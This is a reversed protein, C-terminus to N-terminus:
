ATQVEIGYFSLMPLYSGVDIPVIFKPNQEFAGHIVCSGKIERSLTLQLKSQDKLEYAKIELTGEADAVTFPLAQVEVEFAYIRLSINDFSLLISDSGIAEAKAIDPAKCNFKKIGYIESLATRAFREGLVMNSASSNHIGDSLGCDIAPIVYVGSIRKPAQRQAERVMGWGRDAEPTSGCVCRNLQVTLVPLANNKFDKRLHRVMNEFRDLYTEYAGAGTDSCGQYWLIGKVTDTYAKASQLMSAYLTGEEDPNWRSLPSGGLSAQILGVPYGLEKKLQKAFSLYPSHGPNAGERNVEHITQTSENLPHSALDWKGSNRLVHVGLEPPDFVPDKGYGASNSQGTIIYLDGVGIHHIMDGRTGWEIRWGCSETNLCTEVRYLGGAPVNKLTVRWGYQEPYECETWQIVPEGTEEKVLRAYVKSPTPPDLEIWEGSLEINACGNMQQLIQWEKPGQKIVVGIQM